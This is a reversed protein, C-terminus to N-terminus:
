LIPLKVTYYDKSEEIGINKPSLLSYRESLNSNGMYTSATTHALQQKANSVSITKSDASISITLPHTETHENHKLANEVLMQLSCPAIMGESKRVNDDINVNFTGGFRSKMIKIYIDVFRVEEAIPVVSKEFTSLNYRYVKSLNMLFNQAKAQDEDILQSLISFNNFVFHPNIQNELSKLRFRDREHVVKIYSRWYIISVVLSIVFCMAYDILMEGWTFPWWLQFEGDMIFWFAYYLVMALLASGAVKLFMKIIDNKKMKM